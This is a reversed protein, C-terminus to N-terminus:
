ALQSFSYLKQVESLVHGKLAEALVSNIRGPANTLKTMREM